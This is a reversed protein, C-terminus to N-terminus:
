KRAAPLLLRRTYMLYGMGQRHALLSRLHAYCARARSGGELELVSIEHWAASMRRDIIGGIPAPPHMALMRRYLAVRSYIFVASKSLSGPTDNCRFTPVDIAHVRKGAMILRYALWTWEMYAHPDEFFAQGISTARFLSNCSSLWNEQFLEFLPAANVKALRSYTLRDSGQRCQYGGSVVLDVSDDAEMIAARTDLAGPLFADDDDLFAFYKSAVRARGAIHAQTLSAAEIQVVEVDERQRLAALLHMDFRNGNVVVLVTVPASAARHVSEIAALLSQQRALECLTPIIVTMRMASESTQMTDPM